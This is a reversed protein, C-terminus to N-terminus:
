AEETAAKLWEVEVAREREDATIDEQLAYLYALAKERPIREEFGFDQHLLYYAGNHFTLRNSARDHPPDFDVNVPNGDRLCELYHRISETTTM